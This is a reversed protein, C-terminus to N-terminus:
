HNTRLPPLVKTIDIAKESEMIRNALVLRASAIFSDPDSAPYGIINTIPAKLIMDAPYPATIAEAINTRLNAIDAYTSQSLNEQEDTVVFLLDDEAMRESDAVSIISGYLRTGESPMSLLKEFDELEHLEVQWPYKNFVYTKEFIGRFPMTIRAAALIGGGIMSGSVDILAIVRKTKIPLLREFEQRPMYAKRFFEEAVDRSEHLIGLSARSAMNLTFERRRVLDSLADKGLMRLLTRSQMAIDNPSMLNFAIATAQEQALNELGIRSRVIEWPLKYKTVLRVAEPVNGTKAFRLADEYAKIRDTPAECKGVLWCWIENLKEDSTKPHTIRLLDRYSAPYKIAQYEHWDLPRSELAKNVETKKRHGWGWKFDRSRKKAIEAFLLVKPVPYTSLLKVVEDKEPIIQSAVLPPDKVFGDHRARLVVDAVTRWGKSQATERESLLLLNTYETLSMYYFDEGRLPYCFVAKYFLYEPTPKVFPKQFGERAQRVAHFIKGAEETDRLWSM